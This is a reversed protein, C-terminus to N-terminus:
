TFRGRKESHRSILKNYLAILIREENLWGFKSACEQAAITKNAIEQPTLSGLLEVLSETSVTSKWGCGNEDIISAMEPFDSIIVPLGCLLYEFIKNPLCYYHNLCTNELLSIGVDAGSTFGLLEQPPVAPHYHINPYRRSWDIVESQLPGNGLFVVHRDPETRAFANLIVDIGRGVDMIGQVIFLREVDRIGFAQRLLGSKRVISTRAHPINRVVHVESLNYTDRYWRGISNCVVIVAEAQGILARELLRAFVRRLGKSESTETELEHTDYILRSGCFWTFLIGLPLVSLSHCNIFTPRKKRFEYFIRLYWEAFRLLKGLLGSLKISQLPIRRVSRRSDLQEYEALGDAWVAGIYIQEFLGSDVLSGTEKLIRSEHTFTSPYIHLASTILCVGHLPQKHNVPKIKM